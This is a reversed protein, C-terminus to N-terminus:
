LNELRNLEEKLEKIRKKNITEMNCKVLENLMKIDDDDFMGDMVDQHYCVYRDAVSISYRHRKFIFSIEGNYASHHPDNYELELEGNFIAEKLAQRFENYAKELEEM